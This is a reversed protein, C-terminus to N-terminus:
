LRTAVAVGDRLPTITAFWDKSAKMKQNFEQIGRTYKDQSNSETVRGSWLVNDTLFLGGKRVHAAAMDFVRPYDHKDVDNFLIDFQESRKALAELADGVHIEIRDLVGAQRFYGEAERANKEDGDTYYVRGGEGVAMAWWITSYGIASGMEFVTKADILKAYQYLVRGVAPGVIPIDRQKAQREMEELVPTRPPLIEYLYADVKEDMFSKM